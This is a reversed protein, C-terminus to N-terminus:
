ENPRAQDSLQAREYDHLWSKSKRSREQPKSGNLELESKAAREMAESATRRAEGAEKNLKAIQLQFQEDEKKDKAEAVEDIKDDFKWAAWGTFGGILPLVITFFTLWSYWSELRGEPIRSLLLDWMNKNRKGM